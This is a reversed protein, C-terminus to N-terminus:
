RSRAPDVTDAIQVSKGTRPDTPQLTVKIRHTSAVSEGTSGDINLVWVKIGGAAKSDRTLSVAFELEVQGLTFKLDKSAGRITAQILQERIAEVADALEMTPATAPLAAPAFPVPETM